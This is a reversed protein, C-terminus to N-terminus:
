NDIPNNILITFTENQNWAKDLLNINAVYINKNECAGLKM